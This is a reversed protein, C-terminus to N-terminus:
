NKQINSIIKEPKKVCGLFTLSICYTIFITFSMVSLFIFRSSIFNLYPKITLAFVSALTISMAPKILIKNLCIPFATVKVLRFAYLILSIFSTIFTLALFANIGGMPVFIAILIIRLIGEFINYKMSAIQEGIANLIGMCILQVYLIPCLLSLIKLIPGVDTNKYFMSAIENPFLIFIAAVYIGMIITLQMSKECAKRVAKKNGDAKAFSLEPILVTIISQLFSTPFLILPFVMGRIIGYTSTAIKIDGNAFIKLCEIILVSEILKLAANFSSSTQIPISVKLLNKFINKRNINKTIPATYKQKLYFLWIFLCALAESVSMSIAIISCSREIDQSSVLHIVFVIFIIKFLQEVINTISPISAKRKAFFYGKICSSIAICPVSPALWFIAKATIQERLILAAIQNKFFILVFSILVGLFTAWFVSIKLITNANNKNKTMNEAIIRSVAFSIGSSTFTIVLIYLSLILQYIGMGQAGLKDAIVVRMFFGLIRTLISAVLVIIAGKVLVKKQM